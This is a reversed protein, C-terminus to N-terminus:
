SREHRPEKVVFDYFLDRQRAASWGPGAPLGDAFWAPVAEVAFLQDGEPWVISAIVNGSHLNVAHLGCVSGDPELGPAYQRFRPLVRSTGVFAIGSCLALGRTWGPLLAVRVHDGRRTNVEVLEGYGSNAVFLHRSEDLRASHPRTLGEALPERSRGSFVVGRGDVPFDPHGPKRRGPSATSATFFSTDLTRGAAVSNLQLHNATFADDRDDLCAPWWERLYGEAHVRGVSNEGVANARLHGGVMALDHLYLRGPLTRARVPLLTGADLDTAGRGRMPLLDLVQNPNRTSALHVVGQEPDFAIGSPHPVPLYTIAGRGGAGSLALLLHEYERSVLLTIGLEDLLEWFPGRRRHRLLVPDITSEWGVAVDLPNRWAADADIM